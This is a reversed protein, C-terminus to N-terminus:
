STACSPSLVRQIDRLFQQIMSYFSRASQTLIIERDHKNETDRITRKVMEWRERKIEEKMTAKISSGYSSLFAVLGKVLHPALCHATPLGALELQRSGYFVYRLASSVYKTVNRFEAVDIAVCNSSSSSSQNRLDNPFIHCIIENAFRELQASIWVTLSIFHSSKQGRFSADCVSNTLLM